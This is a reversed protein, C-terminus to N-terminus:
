PRTLRGDRYVFVGDRWTGGTSPADDSRAVVIRVSPDSDLTMELWFEQDEGRDDPADYGDVAQGRLRSTIWGEYYGRRRLPDLSALDFQPEDSSDPFAQNREYFRDLADYLVHAEAQVLELDARRRSSDVAATLLPWGALLIAALLLLDVLVRGSRTSERMGDDM